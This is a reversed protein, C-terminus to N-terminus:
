YESVEPSHKFTNVFEEVCSECLDFKWIQEDFKSGYGFTLEIEHYQDSILLKGVESGQLNDQKGCKNCTISKPEKKVVKIERYEKM